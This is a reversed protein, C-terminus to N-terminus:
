KKFQLSKKIKKYNKEAKKKCEFLYGTARCKWFYVRVPRYNFWRLRTVEKM